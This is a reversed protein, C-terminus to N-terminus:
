GTARSGPSGSACPSAASLHPTKHPTLTVTRSLGGTYTDSGLSDRKGRGCVEGGCLPRRLEGLVEVVEDSPAELVRFELVLIRFEPALGVLEAVLDDRAQVVVADLWRGVDMQHGANRTPVLTMVEPAPAKLVDELLERLAHPGGRDGKLLRREAGDGRGEQLLHPLGKAQGALPPVEAEDPRGVLLAQRCPSALVVEGLLIELMPPEIEQVGQQVLYTPQAGDKESRSGTWGKGLGARRGLFNM